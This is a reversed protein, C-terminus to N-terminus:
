SATVPSADLLISIGKCLAEEQRKAEALAEALDEVSCECWEGDTVGILIRRGDRAAIVALHRTRAEGDTIDMRHLVTSGPYGLQEAGHGFSLNIELGRESRALLRHHEDFEAMFREGMAEHASVGTKAEVALKWECFASTSEGIDRVSWERLPRGMVLVDPKCGTRM